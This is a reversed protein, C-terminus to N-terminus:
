GERERDAPSLMAAALWAAGWLGSMDHTYRRLPIRELVRLRPACFFAEIFAPHSPLAPHRKVMGGTLYLGGYCLTSLAWQACVRGLFRAYWRLTECEQELYRSAAQPDLEEGSLYTHLCALGRGSVVEDGTVWESAFRKAAYASFDAEDRGIFPFPAHGFEAPFARRVHATGDPGVPVLQAAGLGTGAGLVARVGDPVPDPGFVPRAQRGVETLCAYAECVFDNALRCPCLRGEQGADWETLDLRVDANSTVAHWPASVPGAIGIVLSSLADVPMGLSAEWQARLSQADKVLATMGTVARELRLGGQADQTFLGYRTHTGGLDVAGLLPM